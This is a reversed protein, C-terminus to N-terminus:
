HISCVETFKPLYKDTNKAPFSTPSKQITICALVFESTVWNTQLKLIQIVYFHLRLKKEHSLIIKVVGTKAENLQWKM